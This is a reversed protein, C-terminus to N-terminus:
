YAIILWQSIFIFKLFKGGSFDGQNNSVFKQQHDQPVHTQQKQQSDHHDQRDYHIEHQQPIQSDQLFNIGENSEVLFQNVNEQQNFTSFFAEQNQAQQQQQELQTNEVEQATVIVFDEGSTNAQYNVDLNFNNLLSWVFKIECVKSKIM